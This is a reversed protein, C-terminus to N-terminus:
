PQSVERYGKDFAKKAQKAYEPSELRKAKCFWQYEHNALAADRRKWALACKSGCQQYTELSNLGNM